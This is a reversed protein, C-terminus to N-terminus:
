GRDVMVGGHLVVAAPRISDAVGSIFVFACPASRRSPFFAESCVRLERCTAFSFRAASM